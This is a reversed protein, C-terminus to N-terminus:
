ACNWNGYFIKESFIQIFIFSDSFRKPHFTAVFSKIHFFVQNIKIIEFCVCMVIDRFDQEVNLSIHVHFRGKKISLSHSNDGFSKNHLHTNSFRGKEWVWDFPFFLTLFINGRLMNSKGKQEVWSVVNIECLLLTTTTTKSTSKLFDKLVVHIEDWRWLKSYKAGKEQM